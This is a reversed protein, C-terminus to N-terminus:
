DRESRIVLRIREALGAPLEVSPRCKRRIVARLQVRFEKRDFCHACGQLHDEVSRQEAGVLEGDIYAELEALAQDCDMM